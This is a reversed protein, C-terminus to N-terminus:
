RDNNKGGFRRDYGAIQNQDCHDSLPSPVSIGDIREKNNRTIKNTGTRSDKDKPIAAHPVFTAAKLGNVTKDITRPM